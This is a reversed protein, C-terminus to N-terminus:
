RGPVQSIRPRVLSGIASGSVASDGAAPSSVAPYRPFYAPIAAADLAAHAGRTGELLVASLPILGAEGAAEVGLAAHQVNPQRSLVSPLV